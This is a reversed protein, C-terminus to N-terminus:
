KHLTCLFKAHQLFSNRAAEIPIKKLYKYLLKWFIGSIFFKQGFKHVVIVVSIIKEMPQLNKLAYLIVALRLFFFVKRLASSNAISSSGAKKLENPHVDLDNFNFRISMCPSM